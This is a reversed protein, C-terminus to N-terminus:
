RGAEAHEARVGRWYALMRDLKVIDDRLRLDARCPATGDRKNQFDRVEVIKGISTKLDEFTAILRDATEAAIDGPDHATM